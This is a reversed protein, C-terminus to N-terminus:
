QFTRAVKLVAQGLEVGAARATTVNVMVQPRGANSGVGLLAGRKVLAEDLALSYWRARGAAALVDRSADDGMGAHLLVASARSGGLEPLPVAVFELKRENISRLELASAATVLESARAEDGKGYPVLVVFPSQAHAAFNADYTLVKLMVMLQLNVPVPEAAAVGSSALALLALARVTM